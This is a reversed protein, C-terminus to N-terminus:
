LTMCSRWFGSFLQIWFKILHIGVLMLLKRRGMWLTSKELYKMVLHSSKLVILSTTNQFYYMQPDAQIIFVTPHFFEWFPWAPMILEYFLEMICFFLHLIIIFSYDATALPYLKYCDRICILLVYYFFLSSIMVWRHLISLVHIYSMYSM